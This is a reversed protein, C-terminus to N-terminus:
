ESSHSLGLAHGIEHVAVKFLSTGVGDSTTKWTEDDDFHVFEKLAHALVNGPGDFPFGDGHDGKEFRIDIDVKGVYKRSFKLDTHETWM